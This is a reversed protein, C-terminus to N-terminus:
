KETALSSDQLAQFVPTAVARYTATPDESWTTKQDAVKQLHNKLTDRFQPGSIENPINLKWVNLTAHSENLLILTPGGIVSLGTKLPISDGKADTTMLPSPLVDAPSTNVSNNVAPNKEFNSLSVSVVGKDPGFNIEADKFYEPRFNFQQSYKEQFDSRLQAIVKNLNDFKERQMDGIRTRDPTTLHSVMPLFRDPTVADNIIKALTDRVETATKEDAAQSGLQELKQGLNAAPEKTLQDASPARPPTLSPLKDSQQAIALTSASFVAAATLLHTPKM